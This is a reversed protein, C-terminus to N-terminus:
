RSSGSSGGPAIMAGSGSRANGGPVTSSTGIANSAPGADSRNAPSLGVTPGNNGTTSGNQSSGTTTSSAADGGSASSGGATAGASNGPSQSFAPTTTLLLASAFALTATRM